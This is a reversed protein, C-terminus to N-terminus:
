NTAFNQIYAGIRTAAGARAANECLRPLVIDQLATRRDEQEPYRKPSEDAALLDIVARLVCAPEYDVRLIGVGRAEIMGRISPHPRAILRGNRAELAVRDDAVLAAFAGPARWDAILQLTLTSKGAGAPGRLLLGFEGLVLANAHLYAPAQRPPTM